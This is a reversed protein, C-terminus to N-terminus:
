PSSFEVIVTKGAGEDSKGYETGKSLIDSVIEKSFAGRDVFFNLYPGKAEVKSLWSASLKESGSLESAIMNPAKHMTKALMFCPFAFDGMDEQPPIELLRNVQELELGTIESVKEAVACRFDM